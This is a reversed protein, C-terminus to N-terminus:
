SSACAAPPTAATLRITTCRLRRRERRRRSVNVFVSVDIVCGADSHTPSDTNPGSVAVVIRRFPTRTHTRVDFIYNITIMSFCSILLVFIPSLVLGTAQFAAPLSLVGVGMIFNVTIADTTRGWGGGRLGTM